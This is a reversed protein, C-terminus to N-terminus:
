AAEVGGWLSRPGVSADTRCAVLTEDPLPNGQSDIATGGIPCSTFDFSHEFREAVVDLVRRAQAVIEPGIGDGPLLVLKADM